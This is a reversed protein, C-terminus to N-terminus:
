RIIAGGELTEVEVDHSEVVAKINNELEEGDESWMGTAEVGDPTNDQIVEDLVTRKERLEEIGMNQLEQLEELKRTVRELESEKTQNPDGTLTRVVEESDSYTNRFKRLPDLFEIRFGTHIQPPLETLSVLWEHDEIESYLEKAGTEEVYEEWGDEVSRILECKSSLSSALVQWGDETWWEVDSNNEIERVLDNRSESDDFWELSHDTLALVGDIQLLYRKRIDWVDESEEIKDEDDVTSNIIEGWEQSRAEIEETRKESEKKIDGLFGEFSEFLSVVPETELAEKDLSVDQKLSEARQKLKQNADKLNIFGKDISETTELFGNEELLERTDDTIGSLRLRTTSHSSQDLVKDFDVPDGDEDVPRFEGSRCLGWIIASIAPKVKGYMPKEDDKETEEREKEEIIELLRSISLEEKEKLNRGVISRVTSYGVGTQAREVSEDTVVGIKSAWQPLSDGEDVRKLQRLSEDDVRLMEPHFHDPYVVDVYEDVGDSVSQSERERVKYSGSELISVAGKVVTGAKEELDNQVSEPTTQKDESAKRLSWWDVVEDKFPNVGNDGVCWHLAKGDLFDPEELDLLGHIVVDIGMGDEEGFVTDLGEEEFRFNYLVPYEKGDYEIKRPIDIEQIVKEWLHEDIKEAIDQWDPSSELEDARHYIEREELNRFEYKSGSGESERIYKDLEELSDGVRSSMRTRDTGQLDDIVSVAINEDNLPVFEPVYSLLLVVKAIKLDLEDLDRDNDIEKIIEVKQPIIDELEPEILDYFDVLTILKNPDNNERWEDLLGHVIALIARATGSFISKSKDPSKDRLNSLIELFLPPQYPLLPHYNLFRTTDMDDLKPTTNQGVDSYILTTEPEIVAESLLESGIWDKGEETKELLRQQVIEGVHRSPLSYQHPFRDKLIGFDAGRAVHEPVDEIKEQATAVLQINGQGIEDVNEALVNLETLRDTDGGIFLTVEDLLLVLRVNNESEEDMEKRWEELETIAERPSLESPQLDELGDTSGTEMEFIEPLVVDSLIKYKQVDGWGVDGMDGNSKSLAEHILEDRKEWSDTGKFWKEFYAIELRPSLGQKEHANKLLIDSFSREEMGQYKLLNIALPLVRYTEIVETWLQKLETNESTHGSTLLEWTEEKGYKNIWDVDCLINLVGLLHSKGSGYYGHLWHNAGKRMEESDGLIHQFFEAMFKKSDETLRYTKLLTERAGDEDERDVRISEEFEEEWNVFIDKESLKMRRM